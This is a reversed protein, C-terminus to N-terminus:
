SFSLFSCIPFFIDIRKSTEVLHAPDFPSRDQTLSHTGLDISSRKIWVGMDQGGIQGVSHEHDHHLIFAHMWPYITALREKKLWFFPFCLSPGCQPYMARSTSLCAAIESAEEALKQRRPVSSSSRAVLRSLLSPPISLWANSPDLQHIM